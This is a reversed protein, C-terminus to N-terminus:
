GKIKFLLSIIRYRKRLLLRYVIKKNRELTKLYPNERYKPFTKEVYERITSLLSSLPDIRLIRVSAAILVHYIALFELEERFHEFAGQEQYYSLIDEMADLIELNRQLNSNHMTSDPRQYYHYYCRETVGIGDAALYLKTVTRFDEYWVRAPFRIGTKVFLDRHFLKNCPSPWGNLIDRNEHFDLRRHKEQAEMEQSLLKGNEGVIDWGCIVMELNLDQAEKWLGSLMDPAITDDSDVFVFYQGWAYEMGTNRAVGQGQNEQHIVRIIEPYRLAYEEAMEGSSDTSGDDVLIVEYSDFDQQMISDLCANLYEKVNYVPVIVSIEPM